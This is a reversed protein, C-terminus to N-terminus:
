EFALNREDMSAIKRRLSQTPFGPRLWKPHKASHLLHIDFLFLLAFTKNTTNM